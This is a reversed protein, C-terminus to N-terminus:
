NGNKDLEKQSKVLENLYTMDMYMYIYINPDTLTNDISISMSEWNIAYNLEKGDNFLKFDIFVSPSLKMSENYKILTYLDKDNQMEELLDINIQKLKIDDNDVYYQTSSYTEWDYENREPIDPVRITYLGINSDTKEEMSAINTPANASFYMYMKPSPFQIEASMEVIFNDQIMGVRDGDDINVEEPILIRVHIGKLRIFFEMKGNIARFKFIIPIGSHANLYRVFGIPNLIKREKDVDFGADVAIQVMINYPIHYDITLDDGQTYGVRYALQMFKAVDIQQAKTQFRCRYHYAIKLVEMDYGLYINNKTDKLFAQQVNCTKIYNDIGYPYSYLKERDYTIDFEPVISVNPKLIKIKKTIDFNRFDDLVHKGDIHINKFFNEPFRKFFWESMFKTALSYSHVVSPVMLSGSLTLKKNSEYM